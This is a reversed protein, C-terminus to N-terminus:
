EEGEVPEGMAMDLRLRALQVDYLAGAQVNRADTLKAQADLVELITGAGLRYSEEAYRLDEEASAISEQSLEIRERERQLDLLAQQIELAIDWRQQELSNEAARLTERASRVGSRTAWGDFLPVSLSFGYSWSYKQSFMDRIAGYNEDSWSYGGHVFVNPRHGSKQLSVAAQTSKVNWTAWDMEPRQKLARSLADEFDPLPDPLPFPEEQIRVPATPDLGLARSLGARAQDLRNQASILNLKDNAMKVRSKLVDVKAKAGLEYMTQSQKLQAESLRLAEQVVELLKEARLVEIYREKVTRIVGRQQIRLATKTMGANAKAQDMQAWNRGGNYISQSLSAGINATTYTQEGPQIERLTQPDFYPKDSTPGQGIRRTGTNAQIQPLFAARAQNVGQEAARVRHQANQISLDNKLAMEICQRLTLEFPQADATRMGGWLVMSVMLAVRRTPSNM